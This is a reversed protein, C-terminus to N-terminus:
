QIYSCKISDASINVLCKQSPLEIFVFEATQLVYYFLSFWFCSFHMLIWSWSKTTFPLQKPFQAFGPHFSHPKIHIYMVSMCWQCLFPNTSYGIGWVWPFTLIRRREGCPNFIMRRIWMQITIYHICFSDMAAKEQWINKGLSKEGVPDAGLILWGTEQEGTHLLGVNINCKTYSVCQAESHYLKEM